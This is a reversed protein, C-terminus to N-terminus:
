RRIPPTPTPDEQRLMLQTPQNPQPTLADLQPKVVQDPTCAASAYAFGGVAALRAGKSHIARQLGEKLSM